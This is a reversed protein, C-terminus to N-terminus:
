RKRQEDLVPRLNSFPSKFGAPGAIRGATRENDRPVRFTSRQPDSLWNAFLLSLLRGFVDMM